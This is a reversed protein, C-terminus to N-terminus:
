VGTANETLRSLTFLAGKEVETWFRWVKECRFAKMVWPLPDTAYWHDFNDRYPGAVVARVFFFTTAIV